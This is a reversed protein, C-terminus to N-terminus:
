LTNLTKVAEVLQNESRVRNRERILERRLDDQQGPFLNIFNRRRLRQLSQYNNGPSRIIYVPRPELVPLTVMREGQMINREGTNVIRRLVLLSYADDVLVQVFVGDPDRIGNLDASVKRFTATDASLPMALTFGSVLHKDLIVIDGSSPNLWYLQDRYGNYQLLRDRTVDGSELYIDGKTWGDIFYQSGSAQFFYNLVEGSLVPENLDNIVRNILSDQGSAAFCTFYISLALIVTKLNTM